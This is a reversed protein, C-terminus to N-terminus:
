LSVRLDAYRTGGRHRDAELQQSKELLIKERPAPETLPSANYRVNRTNNARHNKGPAESLVVAFDILKKSCLRYAFSETCSSLVSPLKM